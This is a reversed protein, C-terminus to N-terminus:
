KTGESFYKHWYDYTKVDPPVGFCIMRTVDFIHASRGQEILVEIASDAYFENNVRRNQAILAEAAERFFKAKRFWFVGIVGPDRRVDPGFAKKCQVHVIKGADDARVWGYQNPNRNAHPHNRFTWVLCDIAPDATLAALNVEDYVMASDCPAILLPKEPDLHPLGVLCTSAQGETMTEVTVIKADRGDAQVAAVIKPNAADEARMVAVWTADNPYSRLARQVMPVGAVPVLPKPDAYGENKFRLGAGVMPILVQLDRTKRTPKWETETRFHTAWSEFEELDEPTGWQLFTPVEYIWVKKNQEILINFPTSAYFEGNTRMDREVATRFTEKMLRGSAFWYAGSSSYEQFRNDTFIHKERIELMWGNEDRMNAYKNPGLLHPHFGRYAQVCGDPKLRELTAKFDEYDWRVAYDCYHLLTPKADDIHDAVELAAWVPGNKVYDVGVIRGTPAIRNLVERVPTTALHDNACIFLFDTEGPFQRVIHEIIPVGDARILPKIDTYGAAAFRSGRGSMPIVIQM